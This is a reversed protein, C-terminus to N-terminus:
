PLGAHSRIKRTEDVTFARIGGPRIGSIALGDIRTRKLRIVPHRLTDLMRRIQRKRGEKLTIEIWSNSEAIRVTRVRVPLTMGDELRIGHRLRGLDKEGLVGKVKVQYTKPMKKAPHMVANALDGDNTLILLGESDFDLRGVPYVRQRVGRLFDKITPRGEPDNLSTVVGKPKHFLYYVRPAIGGGRAGGTLLKRGLKIHDKEPDAKMGITAVTGNVTVMGEIILEEAKRRSAVGLESLIKQLRKEM